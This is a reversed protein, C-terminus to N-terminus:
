TRSLLKQTDNIELSLDYNASKTESFSVCFVVQGLGRSEGDSRRHYINKPIFDGDAGDFFLGVPQSTPTGSQARSKAKPRPPLNPFQPMSHVIWFGNGIADSDKVKNEAM